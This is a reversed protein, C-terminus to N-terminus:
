RSQYLPTLLMNDAFLWLPFWCFTRLFWLWPLGLILSFELFIISYFRYPLVPCTPYLWPDVTCWLSWWAARALCLAKFVKSSMSSWSESPLPLLPPLSRFLLPLELFPVILREEDFMIGRPWYLIIISWCFSPWCTVRMLDDETWPKIGPWRWQCEM